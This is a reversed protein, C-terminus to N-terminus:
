SECGYNEKQSYFEGVDLIEYLCQSVSIWEGEEGNVIAIDYEAPHHTTKPIFHYTYGCKNEGEAFDYKCGYYWYEQETWAEKFRKDAVIGEVPEPTPMPACSALLFM